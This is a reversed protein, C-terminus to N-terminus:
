VQRDDRVYAAKWTVPLRKLVDAWTAQDSVSMWRASPNYGLKYKAPITSWVAFAREQDTM